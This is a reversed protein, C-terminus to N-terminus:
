FLVPFACETGDRPWFVVALPITWVKDHIITTVHSKEDVLSLLCFIEKESISSERIWVAGIVGFKFNHQADNAAKQQRSDGVLPVLNSSSTNSNGLFGGSSNVSQILHFFSSSQKERGDVDVVGYRLGFKIVKVSALVRKGITDHTGSVNHHSSLFSNDTPITIDAFTTGMGQSGTSAHHIYRFNVWDTSKLCAHLSKGYQSEFIQNAETINEDSGGSVLTNKHGVRHRLHLVVCNNTVNTM